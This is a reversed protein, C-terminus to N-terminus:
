GENKMQKRFMSRLREQAWRETPNSPAGSWARKADESITWKECASSTAKRIPARFNKCCYHRNLTYWRCHLCIRLPPDPLAAAKEYNM